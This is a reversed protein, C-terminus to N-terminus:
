SYAKVQILIVKNWYFIRVYFFALILSLFWCFDVVFSFLWLLWFGWCFNSKFCWSISSFCSPFFAFDINLISTLHLTNEIWIEYLASNGFWLYLLIAQKFYELRWNLINKLWLLFRAFSYLFILCKVTLWCLFIPM